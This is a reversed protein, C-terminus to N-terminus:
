FDTEEKEYNCSDRTGAVEDLYKSRKGYNQGRTAERRENEVSSAFVM